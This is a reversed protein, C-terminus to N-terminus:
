RSGGLEPDEDECVRDLWRSAPCCRLRVGSASFAHAPVALRSGLRQRAFARTLCSRWQLPSGGSTSTRQAGAEQESKHTGSHARQNSGHPSQHSLVSRVIHPTNRDVSRHRALRRAAGPSAGAWRRPVAASSHAASTGYM